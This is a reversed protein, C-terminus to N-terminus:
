KVIVMKQTARFEGAQLTYYYVGSSVKEGLSDRGDWYAARDKTTYIGANRTGLVITRLLQGKTDYISITVQANQALKFPLWTDPNFPNPYNQLLQNEFGLLKFVSPYGFSQLIRDLEDITIEGAIYKQAAQAIPNTAPFQDILGVVYQLILAADYASITGDGSVDGYMPIYAFGRLLTASQGDPNTVVVDKIGLTGPPTNVTIQTESDISVETASNGGITVTAGDQFYNGTITMEDGGSIQGIEPFISEIIPPLVVDVSEYAGMDPIEDRKKGEIDYLPAGSPTGADICPSGSQLHYDDSSPDVFLPDADINGELWYVIGNDNTVIGNKGGQVNSYSITVACPDLGPQPERFYIEQPINGWLITNVIVPAVGNRCQIAGGSVQAYNGTITNNTIILNSDNECHIAGGFWRVSNGAIVNNILLPSSNLYCSIGGGYDASNDMITNNEITPSSNDWCVIGGANYGASNNRITNNSIMPSSEFCSIGGGYGKYGPASNNKIINNIITPSANGCRIGGGRNDPYTNGTSGNQITFGDVVSTETEGSHFYFGRGDSECDIVCNKAGNESKVTIAKGKFDLNKNGEGTWTGNVVLVTDGDAAVDIGAQLTPYDGPVHIIDAYGFCTIVLVLILCLCTSKM